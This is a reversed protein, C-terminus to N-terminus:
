GEKESGYLPCTSPFSPAKIEGTQGLAVLEKLKEIAGLPDDM